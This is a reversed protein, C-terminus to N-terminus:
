TWAEGEGPDDEAALAARERDAAREAQLLLFLGAVGIILGLVAAIVLAPYRVVDVQVAIVVGTGSVWDRFIDYVAVGFATLGVIGIGAAPLNRPGSAFWMAIALVVAVVGAAATVYGDGFGTAGDIDNGSVKVSTSHPGDQLMETSDFRIWTMFSAAILAVGLVAIAALILNTKDTM